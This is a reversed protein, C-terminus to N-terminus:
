TSCSHTMVIRLKIETMMRLYRDFTRRYGSTCDESIDLRLATRAACSSLTCSMRFRMLSSPTVARGFTILAISSESLTDHRIIM